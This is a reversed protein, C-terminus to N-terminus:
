KKAKIPKGGRAARKANAQKLLARAKVEKKERAKKESQVHSKYRYEESVEDFTKFEKRVSLKSARQIRPGFNERLFLRSEQIFLIAYVISKEYNVTEDPNRTKPPDKLSAAPILPRLYDVLLGRSNFVFAYTYVFAFNNSFIRIKKQLTSRDEDSVDLFEVCVDYAVGEVKESPIKVRILISDSVRFVDFDFRGGHQKLLARYTEFLAAVVAQRRSGSAAGAGIPNKMYSQITYEYTTNEM